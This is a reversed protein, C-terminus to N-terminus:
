APVVEERPLPLLTRGQREIEQQYPTDSLIFRTIGLEAYRRLSSAVEEATVVLWTTAAGGAGFKGPTTYLNEDPAEGQAQLNFLRQQGEAM